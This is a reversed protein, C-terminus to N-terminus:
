APGGAEGIYVLADLQRLASQVVAQDLRCYVQRGLKHTRVLGAKRLIRLHWSMLPQSIRLARGLGSVTTEGSVALHHVVRLRSRDGLAKLLAALERLAATDAGRSM